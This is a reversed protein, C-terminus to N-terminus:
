FAIDDMTNASGVGKASDLKALDAASADSEHLLEEAKTDGDLGVFEQTLSQTRSGEWEVNDMITNQMWNKSDGNEREGKIYLTNWMTVVDDDSIAENEWLFGVLDQIAEPIPIPTSQGSLVDTQIPKKLSWAGDLHLNAYEKDKHKNIFIEGLFGMGLMQVFHNYKNDCAINMVNFLKRYGSKATTGKNQHVFMRQPVKDGSELEILHDPHNLEFVHICKLAANYTPNQPIHKGTEIYGVYRLMAIGARPLVKEFAKDQTLDDTQAAEAGLKNFDISM